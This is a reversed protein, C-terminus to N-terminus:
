PQLYGRSQLFYSVGGFRSEIEKPQLLASEPTADRILQEFDSAPLIKSSIQALGDIQHKDLTMADGIPATYGTVPVLAM